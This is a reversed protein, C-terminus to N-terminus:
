GKRGEFPGERFFASATDASTCRLLGLCWEWLCRGEHSGVVRHARSKAVVFVVPNITLLTPARGEGVAARSRRSRSCATTLRSTRRIAPLQRLKALQSALAALGHGNVSEAARVWSENVTDPSM